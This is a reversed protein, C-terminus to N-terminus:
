FGSLYKEGTSNNKAAVYRTAGSTSIYSVWTYGEANVVSSYNIVEGQYYEAVTQSNISPQSRVRLASVLVTSSGSKQVTSSSAPASNGYAPSSSFSCDPDNQPAYIACIGYSSTKIKYVDAQKKELIEYSLGGYQAPALSGIANPITYPGDVAYVKWSEMHPHLNLYGLSSQPVYSEVVNGNADYIIAQHQKACARANDLSSFAGLQEGNQRKVRYNIANNAPNGEVYSAILANDTSRYVNCKNIQALQKASDLNKFAGIQEGNALKVRYIVDGNSTSPASVNVGALKNKFNNFRAWNNASWNPCVKSNGSIQYHTRVNSLPIGYKNMLYKVLELTNQETKETVGLNPALCCMEIGISNTNNVETRTNGVHWAGCRDEVSQWISSDDVFYHASAQRDGGFFYTANNAATSSQAGVYHIAIYKPDNYDYHNYPSIKRQIPLM